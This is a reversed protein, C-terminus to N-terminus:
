EPATLHIDTDYANSTSPEGAQRRVRGAVCKVSFSTKECLGYQRGAACQGLRDLTSMTKLIVKSKFDRDNRCNGNVRLTM